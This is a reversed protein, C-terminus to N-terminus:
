QEGKKSLWVIAKPNFAGDIFLLTRLDTELSGLWLLHCLTEFVTPAPTELCQAVYQLCIHLPVSAHQLLYEQIAAIILPEAYARLRYSYLAELNTLETPHPADQETHMIYCWDRAACIDEAAQKRRKMNLKELRESRTIEHIEVSGDRRWVIYDPVYTRKKGEEDIFEFQEPQSCYDIVTPDREWQLDYKREEYSEWQVQRGAKNTMLGCSNGGFSVVERVNGAPPRRKIRM